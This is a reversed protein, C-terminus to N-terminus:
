HLCMNTTLSLTDPLSYKLSNSAEWYDEKSHSANALSKSHLLKTKPFSMRRGM